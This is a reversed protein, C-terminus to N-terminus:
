PIIVIACRCHIVEPYSNPYCGVQQDQCVLIRDQEDYGCGVNVYEGRCGEDSCEGCTPYASFTAATKAACAGAAPTSIAEGAAVGPDVAKTAVAAPEATAAAAAFAIFLVATLIAPKLIKM